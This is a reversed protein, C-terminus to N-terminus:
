DTVVPFGSPLKVVKSNTRNGRLTQCLTDIQLGPSKTGRLSIERGTTMRQLLHQMDSDVNMGMQM